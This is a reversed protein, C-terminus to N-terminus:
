WAAVTTNTNKIGNYLKAPHLTRGSYPLASQALNQPVVSAAVM